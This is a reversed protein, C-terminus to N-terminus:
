SRESFFYIPIESNPIELLKCSVYIENQKWASAGSLKRGITTPTIRAKKAFSEITGFKEIIRGRLKSYDFNGM